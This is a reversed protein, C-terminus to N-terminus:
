LSVPGSPVVPFHKEEIESVRKKWEDIMGSIAVNIFSEFDGKTFTAVRTPEGATLALEIVRIAVKLTAYEQLVKGPIQYSYSFSVKIRAKGYDPANDYFFFGIGWKQGDPGYQFITKFSTDAAETWGSYYGETLTEWVPLDELSDSTRRALSTVKGEIVPYGPPLYVPELAEWEQRQQQTTPLDEWAPKEPNDIYLDSVTYGEGESAGDDWGLKQKDIENEVEEIIDLVESSSPDSTDTITMQTEREVLAESTYKPSYVM